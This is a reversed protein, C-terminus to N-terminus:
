ETGLEVKFNDEQCVNVHVSASNQGIVAFAVCTGENDLIRIVKPDFQQVNEIRVVEKTEETINM